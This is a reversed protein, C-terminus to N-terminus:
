MVNASIYAPGARDEPLLNKELHVCITSLSCGAEEKDLNRLGGKRPKVASALLCVFDQCHKHSFVETSNLHSSMVRGSNWEM